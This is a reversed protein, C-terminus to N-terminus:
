RNKLTDNEVDSSKKLIGGLPSPKQKNQKKNRGSTFRRGILVRLNGLKRVQFTKICTKSLVFPKEVEYDRMEWKRDRSSFYLSGWGGGNWVVHAIKICGLRCNFYIFEDFRGRLGRRDTYFERQRDFTTKKLRNSFLILVGTLSKLHFDILTTRTPKSPHSSHFTREDWNKLIQKRTLQGINQCASGANDKITRGFRRKTRLLHKRTSDILRPNTDRAPPPFNRENKLVDVTASMNKYLKRVSVILFLRKEDNRCVAGAFFINEYQFNVPSRTLITLQASDLRPIPHIPM